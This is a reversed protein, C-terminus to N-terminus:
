DFRRRHRKSSMRRSSSSSSRSSSRGGRRRRSKRSTDRGRERSPDRGRERSPDRGRKPPPAEAPIRAALAQEEQRVQQQRAWEKAREDQKIMLAQEMPELPHHWCAIQQWELELRERERTERAHREAEEVARQREEYTSAKERVFDRCRAMMEEMRAAADEAQSSRRAAAASALGEGTEDESGAGEDLSFHRALASEEGLFRQQKESFIWLHDHLTRLMRRGIKDPMDQVIKRSSLVDYLQKVNATGDNVHRCAKALWKVRHEPKMGTVTKVDM